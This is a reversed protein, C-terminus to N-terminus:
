PIYKAANEEVLDRIAFKSAPELGYFSVGIGGACIDNDAAANSQQYVVRAFTSIRGVPLEFELKVSAGKEPPDTM